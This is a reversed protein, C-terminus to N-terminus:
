DNRLAKLRGVDATLDMTGKVIPVLFFSLLPARSRRWIPFTRYYQLLAYGLLFLPPGYFWGGPFLLGLLPTTALKLLLSSRLISAWGAEAYERSRVVGVEARGRRVFWDWIGPLHGRARHAVLADPM